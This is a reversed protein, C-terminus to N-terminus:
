ALFIMKIEKKNRSKREVKGKKNKCTNWPNVRRDYGLVECIKDGTASDFHMLDHNRPNLKTLDTEDCNTNIPCNNDFLSPDAAHVDRLLNVKCNIYKITEIDGTTTVQHCSASVFNILFIISIFLIIVKNFAERKEM